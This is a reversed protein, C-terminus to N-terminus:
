KSLIRQFFSEVQNKDGGLVSDDPIYFTEKEGAFYALIAPIGNVMKKTKLFSYLEISEDVDIEQFLIHKPLKSIYNECIPKIGKCPGCWDATFKIILIQNDKLEKQMKELSSINLLSDM